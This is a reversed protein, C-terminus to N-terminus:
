RQMPLTLAVTSLEASLEELLARLLELEEMEEEVTHNARKSKATM